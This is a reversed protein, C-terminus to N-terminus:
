LADRGRLRGRRHHDHHPGLRPLLRRVRPDAARARGERGARAAPRGRRVPARPAAALPAVRATEGRSRRMGADLPGSTEGASRGGAPWWLRTFCESLRICIAFSVDLTDTLLM